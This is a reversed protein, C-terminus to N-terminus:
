AQPKTRFNRAMDDAISITAKSFMPEDWTTIMM